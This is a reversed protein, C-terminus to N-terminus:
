TTSSSGPILHCPMESNHSFKSANETLGITFSRTCSISISLVTMLRSELHCHQLVADSVIKAGKIPEPQFFDHESLEIRSDLDQVRAEDMVEPLEQLVLRMKQGPYRAAFATLDHGLGGGVDVMFTVDEGKNGSADPSDFLADAPFWASWNLRDRQISKMWASLNSLSAPDSKAWHTFTPTGVIGRAQQFPGDTSATPAKYRNDKAWTLMHSMTSQPGMSNDYMEIWGAAHGPNALTRTLDNAQYVFPGVEDALKLGCVGRLLRIIYEEQEIADQKSDSKSSIGLDRVLENAAVPSPSAALHRFIGAEISIRVVAPLAMCYTMLTILDSPQQLSSLDQCVEEMLTRFSRGGNGSPVQTDM